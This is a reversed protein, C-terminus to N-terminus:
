SEESSVGAGVPNDFPFTGVGKNIIHKIEKGSKKLTCEFSKLTCEFHLKTSRLICNQVITGYFFNPVLSFLVSM